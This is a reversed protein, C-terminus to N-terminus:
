PDAGGRALRGGRGSRWTEGKEGRAVVGTLLLQGKTTNDDEPEFVVILWINYHRNIM